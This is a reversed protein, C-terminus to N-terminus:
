PEGRASRLRTLLPTWALWVVTGAAAILIVGKVGDPVFPTRYIVAATLIVLLAAVTSRAESRPSVDTESGTM